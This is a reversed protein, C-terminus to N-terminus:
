AHRQLTEWGTELASLDVVGTSLHSSIKPSDLSKGQKRGTKSLHRFNLRIYLINIKNEFNESAQCPKSFLSVKTVPKHDDRQHHL